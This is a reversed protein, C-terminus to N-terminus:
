RGQTPPPGLLMERREEHPPGIPPQNNEREKKLEAFLKKQSDTLKKEIQADEKDFIQRMDKMAQDNFSQRRERLQDLQKKLGTLIQDVAKIQQANLDLKKSLLDLKQEKTPPQSIALGTFLFAGLVVVFMKKKLM